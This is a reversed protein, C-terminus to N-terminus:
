VTASELEGGFTHQALSDFLNLAVSDAVRFKELKENAAEVISSFQQQINLPPVPVRFARIHSLNLFAQVGTSAARQMEPKYLDLYFLGFNKVIQNPDFRIVSSGTTSLVAEKFENPFICVNGITGVKTLIIDGPAVRSRTIEEFKSRRIFKLDHTVFEFRRVNKTRIVPIDGNTVYDEKTNIASGFPGDVLGTKGDILDGLKSVEWGKPNTVPDGFMDLFVSKLFQDALEIAQKRKKRIADAKDLIAAIRKQEELPPLPVSLSALKKKNLTAGMVARDTKGMVDLSKMAHKLYNTSVLSADKIPLAAIAENTYMDRQTVGVKGISLKFSFLVTGKAVLKIGSEKIGLDTIGEATSEIKSGQNMDRISLWPNDGDWYAAQSRSPTKGVNIECIDSLNVKPYTM